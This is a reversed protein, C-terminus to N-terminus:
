ARVGFDVTVVTAPGGRFVGPASGVTLVAIGLQRFSPSLLNDRHGPSSMWSSVIRSADLAGGAYLLNEGIGYRAANGVPYYYAVRRAFSAGGAAQHGFFGDGLMQRCHATAASSLAEDLTLPRLGNEERVANIRDLTALELPVLAHPTGVSGTATGAAGIPVLLLAALVTAALVAPFSVRKAAGEISTAAFRNVRGSSQTSKM